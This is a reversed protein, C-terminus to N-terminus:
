AGGPERTNWMQAAPSSGGRARFAIELGRQWDMTVGIRHVDLSPPFYRLISETAPHFNLAPAVLLMRPSQKQLTIGPFFGRATFEDRDLHWTVRIWYDLAQLPLHLDEAVKVEVVALRGAYDCALLDLVGREGAAMAPVQGYVPVPLLSADIDVIRSRVRSELWSEPDRLFLPSRRDVTDSSRRRLLERGLALIEPLNSASALAPTEIGFDVRTGDFSAFQLGNVRWSVGGDSLPVTEVGPEIGLAQTGEPVPIGTRALPLSTDVNGYDRLDVQHEFDEGYVFVSWEVDSGALHLLRLCVNRQKGEPM